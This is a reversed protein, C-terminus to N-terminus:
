RAPKKKSKKPQKAPRQPPPATADNDAGAGLTAGPDPIGKERKWQEVRVLADSIEGPTMEEAVGGREQAAGESGFEFALTMWFYAEVLNRSVGDGEAYLTGLVTQASSEGQEAAKRFWKAAETSDKVTGLGYYHLIGLKSEAVANNQDAARRYWDFAQAYDQAVGLGRMHLNGLNVQADPDGQEALTKFEVYAAAYDRRDLADWGASFDGRAAAAAAILLGVIWRWRNL